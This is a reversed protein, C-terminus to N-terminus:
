RWSSLLAATPLNPALEVEREFAALVDRVTYFNGTDPLIASPGFCSGYSHRTKVNRPGM